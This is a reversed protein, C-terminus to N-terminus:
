SIAKALLANLRKMQRTEKPRKRKKKKAKKAKKQHQQSKTIAGPASTPEGTVLPHPYVVAGWVGNM